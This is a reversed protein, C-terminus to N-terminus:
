GLGGGEVVEGLPDVRILLAEDVALLNVHVLEHGQLVSPSPIVVVLAAGVVPHRVLNGHLAIDFEPLGVLQGGLLTLDDHAVEAEKTRGLAEHAVVDHERNELVDGVRLGALVHQTLGELLRNVGVCELVDHLAEREILALNEVHVM